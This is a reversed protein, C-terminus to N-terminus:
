TPKIITSQSIKKYIVFIPPRIRQGRSSIQEYLPLNNLTVIWSRTSAFYDWLIIRRRSIVSCRNIANRSGWVSPLLFIHFIYHHLRARTNKKSNVLKQNTQSPLSHASCIYRISFYYYHVKINLIFFLLSTLVCVLWCSLNCM